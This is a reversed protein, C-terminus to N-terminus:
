GGSEKQWYKALWKDAQENIFDFASLHKHCSLDPRPDAQKICFLVRQAYKIAEYQKEQLKKIYKVEMKIENERKDILVNLNKMETKIIENHTNLDLPAQALLFLDENKQEIMDFDAARLLYGNAIEVAELHNTM